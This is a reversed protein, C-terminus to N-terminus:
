QKLRVVYVEEDSAINESYMKKLKDILQHNDSKDLDILDADAIAACKLKQDLGKNVRNLCGTLCRGLEDLNRPCFCGEEPTLSYDPHELQKKDPFIIAYPQDEGEGKVVVYKVYHCVDSIQKELEAPNVSEGTSLKFAKINESAIANM